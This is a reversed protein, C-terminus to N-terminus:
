TSNYIVMFIISFSENEAKVSTDCRKWYLERLFFDYLIKSTFRPLGEWVLDSRDKALLLTVLVLESVLTIDPINFSELVGNRM